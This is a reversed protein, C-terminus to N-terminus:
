AAPNYRSPPKPPEHASSSGMTPSHRAGAFDPWPAAAWTSGCGRACRIGGATSPDTPTVYSRSAARAQWFSFAWGGGRVSRGDGTTSVCNNCPTSQYRESTDFLWELANGSLDAHGLRGDGKPTSGVAVVGLDASCYSGSPYIGLYFNGYTCDPLESGWPFGRNEGGGAAAYEWEAETPQRGGDWICFAAAEHWTMCTIAKSENGSPTDTWSCLDNVKLHALLAARDAPLAATWTAQWGTADAEAVNPNRGEGAQPRWGDAYADVFRRFRGM